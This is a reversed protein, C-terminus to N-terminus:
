QRVTLIRRSKIDYIRFLLESDKVSPGVRGTTTPKLKLKLKILLKITGLHIDLRVDIGEALIPRYPTTTTSTVSPNRVVTLLWGM